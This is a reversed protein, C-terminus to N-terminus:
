FLIILRRLLSFKFYTIKAIIEILIFLVSTKVKFEIPQVIVILRFTTIHM